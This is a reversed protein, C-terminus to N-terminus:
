LIALKVLSENLLSANQFLHTQLGFNEAALINRENDDIFLSKTKDLHYRTCILEYIKPDPKKLKETGSVVIGEFMHLFDYRDYALPFTEASWNTLGLLRVKNESKIKKLLELTESIQGGLMETWREYFAKIENEYAPFEAILLENAVAIMRGGDQAENWEFSCVKDLFYEIAEETKFIKRYLYRPNWDILVGGFDFIVTDIKKQM